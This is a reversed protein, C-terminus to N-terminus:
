RAAVSTDQVLYVVAGAPVLGHSQALDQLVIRDDLQAQQAVLGNREELLQSLRDQADRTKWTQSALMNAQMVYYMLFTLSVVALGINLWGIVGEPRAFVGHVKAPSQFRVSASQIRNISNM